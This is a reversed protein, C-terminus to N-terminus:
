HFLTFYPGNRRELDNLTVSTQVLQIGTHSKKKTNLVIYSVDYRTGNRLQRLNTNLNQLFVAVKLSQTDRQPAKPSRPSNM